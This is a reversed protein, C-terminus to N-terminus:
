NQKHHLQNEKISNGMSSVAKEKESTQEVRQKTLRAAHRGLLYAYCQWLVDRQFQDLKSQQM